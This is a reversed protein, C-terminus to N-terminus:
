KEERGIHRSQAWKEDSELLAQINTYVDVLDGGLIQIIPNSQISYWKMKHEQKDTHM